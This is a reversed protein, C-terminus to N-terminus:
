DAVDKVNPSCLRRGLITFNAIMTACFKINLYNDDLCQLKQDSQRGPLIAEFVAHNPRILRTGTFKAFDM